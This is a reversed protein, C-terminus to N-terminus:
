GRGREQIVALLPAPDGVKAHADALRALEEPPISLADDLAQRMRAASAPASAPTRGTYNHFRLAELETLRAAGHIGETTAVVVPRGASLAEIAGRGAAVVARAGAILERPDDVAGLFDVAADLGAAHAELARREPGDGCVIVTEGPRLADILARLPATKSPALTGLFLIHRGPTAPRPITGWYAEASFLNGLDPVPSGLEDGLHAATGGNAAFVADLRGIDCAPPWEVPTTGHVLAIVARIRPDRRALDAFFAIPFPQSAVAIVHGRLRRRLRGRSVAEAWLLLADKARSRGSDREGERWAVHIVPAVRRVRSSLAGRKGVFVVAFGQEHLLQGLAIAYSQSGGHRFANVSIVVTPTQGDRRPSM